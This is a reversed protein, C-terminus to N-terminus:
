RRANRGLREALAQDRLVELLGNALADADGPPVVLGTEGHKVIEPIGGASTLVAPKGLSMGEAISIPQWVDGIPGPYETMVVRETIGLEEALRRLEAKYSEERAFGVMLFATKPERDLIKRAARLLVSQGKYETFPGIQAIVRVTPDGPLGLLQRMEARSGVLESMRQSRIRSDTLVGDAYRLAVRTTWSWIMEKSSSWGGCYMTMSVPRRTM